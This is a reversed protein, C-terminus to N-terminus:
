LPSHEIKIGCYNVPKAKFDHKQYIGIKIAHELLFGFVAKFEATHGESQSAMHALEHIAVFTLLNLDYFVQDDDRPRLCFVTEAGKNVTYSTYGPDVQGELLNGRYRRRLLAINKGFAVKEKDTLTEVNLHDILMTMREHIRALTDAAQEKNLTDRVLYNRQNLSSRAYVLGRYRTYYQISAFVLLIILLLKFGKPVM